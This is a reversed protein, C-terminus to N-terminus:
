QMGKASRMEFNEGFCLVLPFINVVDLEQVPMGLVRASNMDVQQM